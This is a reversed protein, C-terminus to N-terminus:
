TTGAEDEDSFPLRAAEDFAAENRKSCAWVMVGFFAIFSMVTVAIRLEDIGM